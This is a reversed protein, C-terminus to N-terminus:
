IYVTFMMHRVFQTFIWKGTNTCSFPYVHEMNMCDNVPDTPLYMMEPFNCYGSAEMNAADGFFTMAGLAWVWTAIRSEM